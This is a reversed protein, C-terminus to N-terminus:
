PNAALLGPVNKVHHANVLLVELSEGEALAHFVPKWYVGIAEMAVHTVQQEVLWTTVQQLTRWYTSFKRIQQRRQGPREGPTRVAVTIQRKHVDIAAVREYVIQV